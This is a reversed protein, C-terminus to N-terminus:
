RRAWAEILAAFEPLRRLEAIDPEDESSTAAAAADAATATHAEALVQKAAEIEGCRVLTVARFAAHARRLRPLFEVDAVREALALAAPRDDRALRWDRQQRLAELLREQYHGITPGIAVCRLHLDVSRELLLSVEDGAATDGDTARATLCTALDALTWGLEHSYGPRDPEAAVLPEYCRVADRLSALALDDEARDVMVMGREHLSQALDWQMGMASPFDSLVKRQLAISEEIWDTAQEADGNSRLTRAIEFLLLGLQESRDISRPALEVLRRRWPLAAQLVEVAEDLRGLDGLSPGQTQLAAAMQDMLREHQPYKKLLPDLREVAMRCSAIAEEDRGQEHFTIARDNLSRALTITFGQAQDPHRRLSAETLEISRSFHRESDAWHGLQRLQNGLDHHGLAVQDNGLLDDPRGAILQERIALMREISVVAEDPRGLQMQLSSLSEWADATEQRVSLDDGEETLVAQQLTAADELLSLRIQEFQPVDKLHAQAFRTLMLQIAKQARDVNREARESQRKATDLGQQISRNAARQEFAFWVSTATLASMLLMAVALAPHREVWRRARLAVGVRRATIPQRRLLRDLDEALAAASPYRRHPDKEMAVLCVTEVDRPLSPVVSRPTAFAGNMVAQRVADDGSGRFARTLTLLEYLTVGLGYVDTAPGLAEHRGGIQEPAMYPLSGIEAGSRTLQNAGETVALGFDMVVVRGEPTVMVNQPKLDRHLVGRRHAHDLALAAQQVVHLCTDVWGLGRLRTDVSSDAHRGAAEVERAATAWFDAGTLTHRPEAAVRAVLAALTCGPIFEMAFYPTGQEEGVAHIPVISPHQLRSIADIERKFREHANPAWQQEPRIVKLAVDRGLSRQRAHYVIGMGGAGIVDGLDFDGLSSPVSWPKPADTSLGLQRLRELRRRIQTALEPHRACAEDVARPGIQEIQELCDAVVARLRARDTPAPEDAAM